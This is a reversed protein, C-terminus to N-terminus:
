HLYGGGRPADSLGLNLGNCFISVVLFTLNNGRCERSMRMHFVVSWTHEHAFFITGSIFGKQYLKYTCTHTQPGLNVGKKMGLKSHLRYFRAFEPVTENFSPILETWFIQLIKIGSLVNSKIFSNEPPSLFADIMDDYTSCFGFSPSSGVGVEVGGM